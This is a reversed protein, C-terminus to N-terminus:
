KMGARVFPMRCATSTAAQESYSAAPSAIASNRRHPKVVFAGPGAVRSETVTVAGAVECSTRKLLISAHSWLAPFGL